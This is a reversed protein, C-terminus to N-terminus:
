VIEVKLKKEYILFIVYFFYIDGNGVNVWM